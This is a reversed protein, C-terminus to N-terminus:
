INHMCLLMGAVAVSKKELINLIICGYQCTATVNRIVFEICFSQELKNRQMKEIKFARCEVNKSQMSIRPWGLESICQGRIDDNKLVLEPM